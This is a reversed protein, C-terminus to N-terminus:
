ITLKRSRRVKSNSDLDNTPSASLVTLHGLSDAAESSARFGSVRVLLAEKTASTNTRPGFLPRCAM